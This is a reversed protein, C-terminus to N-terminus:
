SKGREREGLERDRKWRRIEREELVSLGRVRRERIRRRRQLQCWREEKDREKIELRERVGKKQGREGERRRGVEEGM